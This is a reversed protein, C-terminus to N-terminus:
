RASGDSGARLANITPNLPWLFDVAEAATPGADLLQQVPTADVPALGSLRELPITTQAPTRVTPLTAIAGGPEALKRWERGFANVELTADLPGFPKGNIDSLFWLMMGSAHGRLAMLLELTGRTTAERDTVCYGMEEVVVPKHAYAFRTTYIASRLRRAIAQPDDQPNYDMPNTYVHVTVYDLFDLEQPPLGALYRAAGSWLIAPHHPHFGCTLLHRSDVERVADAQNKLFRYTVWEKFSNYDAIMAQPRTYANGKWEIEPQDIAEFDAYQTNWAANLAELSGYKSQLWQQWASRGWRDNLCYGRERSAQAGWNGGPMYFEVAFNYSLLAPEDRYREALTKWFNALVTFSDVEAEEASQGLFTGGEHWWRLTQMGWEAFTLSVYVHTERAVDFVYDLRELLPPDLKGFAVQENTQPDPLSQQSTIFVKMVNMHLAAAGQFARHIAEPKWQEQTLIHICHHADHYDFVMNAGFPVFRKGSPVTEFNWGDDAVRVFEMPTSQPQEEASASVIAMALATAGATVARFLTSRKLM